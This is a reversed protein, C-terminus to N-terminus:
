KGYIRGVLSAQFVYTGAAQAFTVEVETYPPIIIQTPYDQLTNDQATTNITDVIETGSMVIRTTINSSGVNAFDGHFELGGVFLYNGTTFKLMTTNSSTTSVNGSYAYAHNGIVNLELGTSATFQPGYGVGEPM